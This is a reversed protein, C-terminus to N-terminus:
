IFNTIILVRIWSISASVVTSNFNPERARINLVLSTFTSWNAPISQNSSSFSTIVMVNYSTIAAWVGTLCLEIVHTKIFWTCTNVRADTSVAYKLRGESKFFTIVAVKYTIVAAAGETFILGPKLTISVGQNTGRDAPISEEHPSLFTIVTISLRPISTIGKALYLQPWITINRYSRDLM